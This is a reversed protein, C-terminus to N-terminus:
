FRLETLTWTPSLTEAFCFKPFILVSPSPFDTSLNMTKCFVVGKLGVLQNDPLYFFGM